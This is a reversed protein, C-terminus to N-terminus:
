AKMNKALKSVTGQFKLQLQQDREHTQQEQEAKAQAPKKTLVVQYEDEVHGNAQRKGASAVKVVAASFPVSELACVRALHGRLLSAAKKAPTKIFGAIEKLEAFNEIFTARSKNEKTCWLGWAYRMRLYLFRGVMWSSGEKESETGATRLSVYDPLSIVQSLFHNNQIFHPNIGMTYRVFARSKRVITLHRFLKLTDLVSRTERNPGALRYEKNVYAMSAVSMSYLTADLICSGYEKRHAERYAFIAQGGKSM